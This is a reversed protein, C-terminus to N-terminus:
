NNNFHFLTNEKFTKISFIDKKEKSNAVNFYNSTVKWDILFYEIRTNKIHHFKGNTNRLEQITAGINISLYGGFEKLIAESSLFIDDAFGCIHVEFKPIYGIAKLIQQKQNHSKIRLDRFRISYATSFSNLYSSYKNLLDKDQKSIPSEMWINICGGDM